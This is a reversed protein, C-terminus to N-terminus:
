NLQFVQGETREFPARCKPCNLYNFKVTDLDSAEVIKHHLNLVLKAEGEVFRERIEQETLKLLQSTSLNYLKVKNEIKEEGTM